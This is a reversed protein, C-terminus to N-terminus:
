EKIYLKAKVGKIVGMNNVRKWYQKDSEGKNPAIYLDVKMHTKESNLWKIYKKSGRDDCIRSGYGEIDITSGFPIDRPMAISQGGVLKGSIANMYARGKGNESELGTYFTLTLTVDKYDKEEKAKVEEMQIQEIKAQEKKVNVEHELEDINTLTEKAEHLNNIYEAIDDNKNNIHGELFVIPAVQNGQRSVPTHIENTNGGYTINVVPLAFICMLSLWLLKRNDNM